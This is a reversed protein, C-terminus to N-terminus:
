MEIATSKPEISKSISNFKKHNSSNDKELYNNKIKEPQDKLNKTPGATIIQFKKINTKITPFFSKNKDLGRNYVIVIQKIMLIRIKKTKNEKELSKEGHCLTNYKLSM